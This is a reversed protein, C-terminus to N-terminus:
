TTQRRGYGEVMGCCGEENAVTEIYDPRFVLSSLDSIPLLILVELHKKSVQVYTRHENLQRMWLTSFEQIYYQRNKTVEAKREDTDNDKYILEEKGVNDLMLDMFQAQQKTTNIFKFTRYVAPMTKKCHAIFGTDQEVVEVSSGSSDSKRKRHGKKSGKSGKKTNMIQEVIEEPNNRIHTLASTMQSNKQELEANKRELETLKKEMDELDQTLNGISDNQNNALIKWEDAKRKHMDRDDYLDRFKKRLHSDAALRQAEKSLQRNYSDMASNQSSITIVDDDREDQYRKKKNRGGDSKGASVFNPSVDKPKQISSKKKPPARTPTSDEESESDESDEDSDRDDDNPKRAVNGWLKEDLTPGDLLGDVLTLINPTVIPTPSTRRGYFKTLTRKRLPLDRKHPTASAKSGKRKSPKTEKSTRGM